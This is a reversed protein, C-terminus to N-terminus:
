GNVTSRNRKNVQPEVDEPLPLLKMGSQGLTKMADEAATKSAYRGKRLTYREETESKQWLVWRM